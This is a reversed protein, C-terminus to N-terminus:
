VAELFARVQEASPNEGISIWTPHTIRGCVRCGNKRGPPLSGPPADAILVASWGKGGCVPCGTGSTAKKELSRIRSTLRM